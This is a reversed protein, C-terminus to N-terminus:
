DKHFAAYHVAAATDFHALVEQITTILLPREVAAENLIAPLRGLVTDTLATADNVATKRHKCSNYISLFLKDRSFPQLRGKNRVLLSDTLGAAEITTFVADCNHCRRRRWVKNVRKQPRSNTIDTPGGCYICVMVVHQCLATLFALPFSYNSKHIFPLYFGRHRFVGLPLNQSM